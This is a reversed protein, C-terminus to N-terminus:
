AEQCRPCDALGQEHVVELVAGTTASPPFVTCGKVGAKWARRFLARFGEYGYGPPLNITKSIAADVYPQLAAQMELHAEPALAQADVFCARLPAHPGFREHWLRLAQSTLTAEALSGDPLRLQRTHRFAFTPEVGSTINGALLSISGAPAITTLHSNRIGWRAIGDRIDEPLARILEGELYRERDFFPFPGKERALAISARYATDRVERMVSAAWERAAPSAYHLGLLILADGLGTLGLGLRRTGRAQAEQAPLPFRSVDIVDDLMRTAVQVTHRVAELDLRALATFPERVFRTLNVSGLDCAGYSPLPIEGCPNTATLHERYGLNNQRNIRDIFLMGPEGSRWAARLIREWLARASVVRVVQCAVPAETGTWRRWLVERGQGAELSAAPFLLPWPEDREVAAMFADTVQVSVNFHRLSGGAEKASVFEEVDPHDCRLTAMMAGRRESTSLLEQSTTDWIRMFSVPGSAVAGTRVARFGRPRLTSFDLGIGGGQQLTLASEGLATFIGAMSDEILGMVFCNFLTVQRSTGAGALIRGGPLFRFEELAEHFRAAHAERDSPEAQALARAVRWWTDAVTREPVPGDRYRYKLEWVRRSFDLEPSSEM